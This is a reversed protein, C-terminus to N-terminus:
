QVDVTEAAGDCDVLQFLHQVSGPCDSQIQTASSCVQCQLNFFVRTDDSTIKAVRHQDQSFLLDDVFLRFIGTKGFSIRKAQWKGLCGEISHRNGESQSIEFM